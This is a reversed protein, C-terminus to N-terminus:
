SHWNSFEAGIEPSRLLGSIRGGAQEHWAALVELVDAGDGGGMCRLLVEVRDPAVVYVWEYSTGAGFVESVGAGEDHGSIRLTGDDELVAAEFQRGKDDAVDRLVVRRGARGPRPYVHFTGGVQGTVEALIERIQEPGGEGATMGAMIGWSTLAERARARVSLWCRRAGTIGTRRVASTAALAEVAQGSLSIARSGLRAKGAADAALGQPATAM